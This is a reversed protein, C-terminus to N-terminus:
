NLAADWREPVSARHRHGSRDDALRGRDGGPVIWGWSARRRREGRRRLSDRRRHETSGMEHNEGKPAETRDYSKCYAPRPKSRQPGGAGQAHRSKPRHPRKEGPNFRRGSAEIRREAPWKSKTERTPTAYMPLRRRNGAGGRPAEIGQARRSRTRIEAGASRKLTPKEM